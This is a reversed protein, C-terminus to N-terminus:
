MHGAPFPHHRQRMQKVNKTQWDRRSDPVEPVSVLHPNSLAPEYEDGVSRGVEYQCSM